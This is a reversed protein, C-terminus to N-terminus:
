KKEGGVSPKSNAVSPNPDIGTGNCRDCPVGVPRMELGYYDAILGTGYCFECKAQEAIKSNEPM